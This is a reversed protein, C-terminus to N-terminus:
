PRYPKYKKKGEHRDCRAQKGIPQRKNTNNKESQWFGPGQFGRSLGCFASPTKCTNQKKRTPWDFAGANPHFPHGLNRGKYLNGLWGAAL